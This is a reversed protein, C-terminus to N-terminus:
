AQLLLLQNGLVEFQNRPQARFGRAQARPLQNFGSGISAKGLDEGPSVCGVTVSCPNFLDDVEVSRADM